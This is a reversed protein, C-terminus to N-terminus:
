IWPYEYDELIEMQPQYFRTDRGPIVPKVSEAKRPQPKPKPKPPEPIPLPSRVRERSGDDGKCAFSVDSDQRERDIWPITIAPAHIKDRWQKPFIHRAETKQEHSSQPKQEHARQTMQGHDPQAKQKGKKHESMINPHPRILSGGIAEPVNTTTSMGTIPRPRSINRKHKSVNAKGADPKAKMITPLDLSPIMESGALGWWPAPNSKSSADIEYDSAAAPMTVPEAVPSEIMSFHEKFKSTYEPVVPLVKSSGRNKAVPLAKSNRRNMTTRPAPQLKPSRPPERATDIYREIDSDIRFPLELSTKSVESDKRDYQGSSGSQESSDRYGFPVERSTDSIESDKRADRPVNASQKGKGKKSTSPKDSFMDEYFDLDPSSIKEDSTPRSPPHAGLGASPRQVLGPEPVSTDEVNSAPLQVAKKSNPVAETSTSEEKKTLNQNAGQGNRLSEWFKDGEGKPGAKYIDRSTVAEKTRKSSAKTDQKMIPVVKNHAEEIIVALDRRLPQGKKLSSMFKAGDGKPGAVYISNLSPGKRTKTPPQYEQSRLPMINTSIIEKIESQDRKVERVKSYSSWLKQGEGKPGTHYLERVNRFAGRTHKKEQKRQIPTKITPSTHPWVTANSEKRAEQTRTFSKPTVYAPSDSLLSVPSLPGRMSPRSTPSVDFRLSGWTRREVNHISVAISNNRAASQHRLGSGTQTAPVSGIKAGPSLSEELMYAGM